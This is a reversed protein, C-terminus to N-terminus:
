CFFLISELSHESYVALEISNLHRAFLKSFRISPTSFISIGDVEKRTDGKVKCGPLRM